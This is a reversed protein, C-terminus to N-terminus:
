QPLPRVLRCPLGLRRCVHRVNGWDKEWKCGADSTSEDRTDWNRMYVASLDYDQTRPPRADASRM